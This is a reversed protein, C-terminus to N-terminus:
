HGDGNEEYYDLAHSVRECIEGNLSEEAYVKYTGIETICDIDVYEFGGYYDLSRVSSGDAIICRDEIDVYVYGARVDLGIKAASVRPLEMVAEEIAEMANDIATM